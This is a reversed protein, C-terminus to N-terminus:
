ELHTSYQVAVPGLETILPGQNNVGQNVVCSVRPREGLRFSPPIAEPDRDWALSLPSPKEATVLEHTDRYTM